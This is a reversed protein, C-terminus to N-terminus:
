LQALRLRLTDGNPAQALALAALVSLSIVTPGSWNEHIGGAELRVMSGLGNPGRNGLPIEPRVHSPDYRTSLYGYRDDRGRISRPWQYRVADSPVPRRGGHQGVAATKRRHRPWPTRHPAPNIGGGDTCSTVRAVWWRRTASGPVARGSGRGRCFRSRIRGVPTAKSERIQHGRDRCGRRSRLACSRCHCRSPSLVRM